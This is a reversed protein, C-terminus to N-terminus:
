SMLSIYYASVNYQALMDDLSWINIILRCTMLTYIYRNCRNYIINLCINHTYELQTYEMYIDNMYTDNIHTNVMYTNDM